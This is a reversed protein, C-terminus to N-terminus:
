FTLKLMFQLSRPSGTAYLQNGVGTTQTGFLQGFTPDGIFSDVSTFNSHNFVNFAEVRIALRLSEHIPFSRELATNLNWFGPARTFNRPVDGQRVPSGDPSLPVPSFAAANLEWGDPVGAVNRLYIPVGPILDPYINFKQHTTPV